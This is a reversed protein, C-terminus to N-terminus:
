PGTRYLVHMHEYGQGHVAKYEDGLNIPSSTITWFRGNEEDRIYIYENPINIVPDNQFDTLKELGATPMGPIAEATKM